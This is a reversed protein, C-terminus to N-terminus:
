CRMLDGSNSRFAVRQYICWVGWDWGAPGAVRSKDNPGVLFGDTQGLPPLRTAKDNGM